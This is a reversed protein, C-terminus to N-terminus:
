DEDNDQEDPGALLFVIPSLSIALCLIFAFLGAELDIRYAGYAGTLLSWLLIWLICKTAPTNM